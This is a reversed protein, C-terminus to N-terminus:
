VPGLLYPDRCRSVRSRSGSSLALCSPAPVVGGWVVEVGGGEWHPPYLPTPSTKKHWHVAPHQLLQGRASCPSKHPWNSSPKSTIIACRVWFRGLGGGRWGGLNQAATAAGSAKDEPPHPTWSRTRGTSLGGDVVLMDEVPTWTCSEAATTACLAPRSPLGPRGRSRPAFSPRQTPFHLPPSLTRSLSLPLFYVLNQQDPPKSGRWCPRCLPPLAPSQHHSM